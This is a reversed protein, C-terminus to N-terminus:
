RYPQSLTTKLINAIRKSQGNVAVQARGSSLMENNTKKVVSLLSRNGIVKGDTAEENDTIIKM